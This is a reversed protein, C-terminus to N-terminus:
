FNVLLVNGPLWSVGSGLSVGATSVVKSEM